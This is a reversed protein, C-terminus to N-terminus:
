SSSIKENVKRSKVVTKLNRSTWILAKLFPGFRGDRLILARYPAIILIQLTLISLINSLPLNKLLFIIKSKYWNFYKVPKNKDATVSEGHFFKASPFYVVKFGAKRARLCFDFDEFFHTFHEDFYGIKKFVKKQILMACGQVWDPEKLQGPNESIYINGTWKNMQFGASAVKKPKNKYYIKGGCIGINKNKVLYTSLIKLSNKEFLLDDNGVFILEGKAKKVAQNVAKAFGLNEANKILSVQPYKKKIQLDSGDTSANDVVIIEIKKSPYNLKQISSLCELPQRGGNYIPFVVSIKPCTKM